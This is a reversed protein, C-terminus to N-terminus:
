SKGFLGKPKILLIVIFIGYIFAQSLSGPLLIAGVSEGIGIIFGGVLAGFLSGIGGLIIIIFMKIIFGAGVTPNLYFFPVLLSGAIAACAAGIGFTICYLQKVNIGMLSAGHRSEACARIAKGLITKKVLLFLLLTVLVAGAFAILRPISLFIEWIQLTDKAYNLQISRFEPGWLFLAFNQLFIHIGIIYFVLIDEEARIMPEILFRQFLVGILFFVPALLFISLYPDMGRVFLFYTGFMGLMLFEGQAFNLIKLVGYVLTLGISVLAYVSGILMGSVIIQIVIGTDM